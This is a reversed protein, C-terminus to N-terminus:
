IQELFISVSIYQNISKKETAAVHENMLKLPLLKLVGGM